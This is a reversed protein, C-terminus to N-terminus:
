PHSPWKPVLVCLRVPEQRLKEMVFELHGFPPNAWLYGRSDDSLANRSYQWASDNETCYFNEQTNAESAFLDVKIDKPRLGLEALARTRLEPTLRYDTSTDKRKWTSTPTTVADIVDRTSQVVHTPESGEPIPM